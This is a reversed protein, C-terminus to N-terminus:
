NVRVLPLLDLDTQRRELDSVEDEGAAMGTLEEESTFPWCPSGGGDSSSQQLRAPRLFRPLEFRSLQPRSSFIPSKPPFHAKQSSGKMAAKLTRGDKGESVGEGMSLSLTFL